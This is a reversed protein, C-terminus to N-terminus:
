VIRYGHRAALRDVADQLDSVDDRLNVGFACLFHHHDGVLGFLIFAYRQGAIRRNIMAVFEVAYLAFQTFNFAGGYQDIVLGTGGLFSTAAFAASIGVGRAAHEDIICDAFAAAVARHFGIAQRDLRQVRRHAHLALDVLRGAIFVVGAY